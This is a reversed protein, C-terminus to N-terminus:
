LCTKLTMMDKVNENPKVQQWPYPNNKHDWVVDPYKFIARYSMYTAFVLGSAVVGLLPIAEPSRKIIKSAFSMIMTMFLDAQLEVLFANTAKAPFRFLFSLSCAKKNEMSECGSLLAPTM